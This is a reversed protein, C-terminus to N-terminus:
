NLVCADSYGGQGERRKRQERHNYFSGPLPTQWAERLQGCCSRDDDSNCQQDVRAAAAVVNSARCCAQHRCQCVGQEPADALFSLASGGIM